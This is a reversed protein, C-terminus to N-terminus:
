NKNESGQRSDGSLRAVRVFNLIMQIKDADSSSRAGPCYPLIFNVDSLSILELIRERYMMWKTINTIDREPDVM